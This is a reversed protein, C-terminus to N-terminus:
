VGVRWLKRFEAAIGKFSHEGGDNWNIAQTEQKETMGLWARMTSDLEFVLTSQCLDEPGDNIGPIVYVMEDEGKEWKGRRSVNCAVGLCCYNGEVDKM